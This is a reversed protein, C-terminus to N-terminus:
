KVGRGIVCSPSSGEDDGDCACPGSPFFLFIIVPFPFPFAPLCEHAPKHGSAVALSIASQGVQHLQPSPISPAHCQRAGHIPAASDCFGPPRGVSVPLRVRSDELGSARRGPAHCAAPCLHTAAFRRWAPQCAPQRSEHGARRRGLARGVRGDVSAHHARRSAPRGGDGCLVAAGGSRPLRM